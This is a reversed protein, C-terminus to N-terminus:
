KKDNKVEEYTFGFFLKIFFRQFRNPMKFRSSIIFDPALKIISKYKPSQFTLNQLQADTLDWGKFEKLNESM